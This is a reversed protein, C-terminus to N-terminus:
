VNRSRRALLLAGVFGLLSALAVVKQARRAEAKVPEPYESGLHPSSVHEGGYCNEGGLRVGLAGAMASEVQGANPSAHKYGDRFWVRGARAGSTQRMGIAILCVLLASLRAPVWNAMDDLRAAARGFHMYREDRHGIMSDLTNVVKYGMALPVGGITLYLLPAIIGDSLSEALTEIVARCIEPEDLTATDRGVIRALRLRTLDVDGGDLASLVRAAEDLLNRTALCTSASWVEAFTGLIRHRCRTQNLIARCLFISVAPVALAIFGGAALDFYKGSGRRRVTQEAKEIGWGIFKVPHPLWEPDGVIWDLTYAAALIHPRMM